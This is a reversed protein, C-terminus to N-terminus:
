IKEKALKPQGAYCFSLVALYSEEDLNRLGSGLMQNLVKSSNEFSDELKYHAKMAKCESALSKIIMEKAVKTQRTQMYGDIQTLSLTFLAIILMMATINQLSHNM